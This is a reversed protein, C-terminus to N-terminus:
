GFSVKYRRRRRPKAPQQGALACGQMSAAVTCGVLCDLWHNDVSSPRVKWEDVKRGRGETRVRYESTLHEALLRHRGGESGFLSLCGPDGLATSLRAQVFSKWYNTDINVTRLERSGGVGPIRWYHGTQDGRKVMYQSYPKQAATIGYGRSPMTVGGLGTKRIAQYVINPLYGSDILCRGVQMAAGDDRSWQTPISEELLSVLGALIAGEKGSNPFERDLTHTATNMGFFARNQPPYTGYSLVYGTFNLEWGCVMWYLLKDHVDISLTIHQCDTSVEGRERGNTKNAIQDPSLMDTDEQGGALPENQYEAFFAAEDRLKLNMAHQIASLEDDNHREPWAAVGGEDMEAQRQRYFDTAERGDSDSKLSEARIQAYQDWLEQNTPFAYLLKTREGQWAPHKDRDLINDAMDGPRIVTCCLIGAIKKGPGAMGLVDGAVLAERRQSQSVSWASETTQPDDLIVLSPRAVTGDALKHKQGRINGGELGTVTIIAGSACSGEITPLVIKDATWVLRTPKGNHLQGHARNHIRELRHIPYIVEPFDGLLLENCELETKISELMSRAREATAGILCVFRRYGCVIAWICAVETITTKGSGRPMAHAFLGGERVAREIKAIVKLHDPSWPLTFTTPFYERCFLQLGESCRRKRGPDEVEPLPAIDRATRSQEAARLREREKRAAYGTPQGASAEAAKVQAQWTALLWAAYAIGNVWKGDSARLGARVINRRVRSETTVEGLRTSNLLAALKTPRM